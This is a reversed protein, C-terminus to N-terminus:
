KKTKIWVLDNKSILDKEEDLIDYDSYDSTSIFDDYSMEKGEEVMDDANEIRETALFISASLDINRTM